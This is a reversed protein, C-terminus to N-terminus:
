FQPIKQNIARVVAMVSTHHKEITALHQVIEMLKSKTVMVHDLCAGIHTPLRTWQSVGLEDCYAAVKLAKTKDLMNMNTDGAIIKTRNPTTNALVIDCLGDCFIDADTTPPNYVSYIYVADKNNKNNSKRSTLRIGVAEISGDLKLQFSRLPSKV